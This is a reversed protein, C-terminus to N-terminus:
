MTSGSYYAVVVLVSSHSRHWVGRAKQKAWEQGPFACFGFFGATSWCFIVCSTQCLWGERLPEDCLNHSARSWTDLFRLCGLLDPRSQWFYQLFPEPVPPPRDIGCCYRIRPASKRLVSEVYSDKEVTSAPNWYVRCASFNSSLSM